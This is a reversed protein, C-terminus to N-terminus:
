CAMEITFDSDASRKTLSRNGKFLSQPISGGLSSFDLDNLESAMAAQNLVINIHFGPTRSASLQTEFSVPVAM